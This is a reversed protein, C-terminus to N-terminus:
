KNKLSLQLLMKLLTQEAKLVDYADREEAVSPVYERTEKIEEKSAGIIARGKALIRNEELRSRENKLDILGSARTTAYDLRSKAEALNRGIQSLMAQIKPRAWKQRPGLPSYEASAGSLFQVLVIEDPVTSPSRTSEEPFLFSRIQNEAALYRDCVIPRANKFAELFDKYENPYRTRLDLIFDLAQSDEKLSALNFNEEDEELPRKREEDISRDLYKRFQELYHLIKDGSRAEGLGLVPKEEPLLSEKSMQHVATWFIVEPELGVEMLNEIGKAARNFHLVDYGFDQEALCMTLQFTQDVNLGAKKAVELFHPLGHYQFHSLGKEAFPQALQLIQESSFGAGSMWGLFEPLQLLALEAGRVAKEHIINILELTEKPSLPTKEVAAKLKPNANAMALEARFIEAPSPAYLIPHLFKALDESTKINEAGPIKQSVDAIFSESTLRSIEGTKAKELILLRLSALPDGKQALEHEKKLGEPDEEYDEQLDKSAAVLGTLLELIFYDNQDIKINEADPTKQAVKALFTEMSKMNQPLDMDLDGKFEGAEDMEMARLLLAAKKDVQALSKLAEMEQPGFGWDRLSRYEKPRELESGDEGEKSMASIQHKESGESKVSNEMFDGPVGEAALKSFLPLPRQLGMEQSKLYLDMSRETPLLSPALGHVLGMGGKMQWNMAEAGLMQAIFSGQPKPSLHSAYGLNQGAVLGLDAALHQLIINQDKTLGGFSKLAGLTLAAHAWEQTFPQVPQHGEIRNLERNVGAFTFSEAGLSVAYSGGRVLLPLITQGKTLLPSAAALTGMRAFRSAFGGAVMAALTKPDVARDISQTVLTDVQSQIESLPKGSQSASHARELLTSGKSSLLHSVGARTASSSM